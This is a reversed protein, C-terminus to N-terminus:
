PELEIEKVAIGAEAFMANAIAFAGSWREPVETKAHIVETFGAQILLKACEPCPHWPYVYISAGELPAGKKAAFAVINQEAHVTRPIKSERDNLLASSDALKSPFGNYGTALIHRDKVAIAGVQTSPDKSWTAIEKALRLFRRDWIGQRDEPTQQSLIARSVTDGAEKKLERVENLNM